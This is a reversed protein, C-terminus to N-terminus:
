ANITGWRKSLSLDSQDSQFPKEYVKRQEHFFKGVKRWYNFGKQESSCIPDISIELWAKCLVNDEASMYSAMRQSIRKGELFCFPLTTTPFLPEEGIDYDHQGPEPDAEAQTYDGEDNIMDQMIVEGDNGM